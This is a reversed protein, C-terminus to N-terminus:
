LDHKKFWAIIDPYFVILFATIISTSLVSITIVDEQSIIM